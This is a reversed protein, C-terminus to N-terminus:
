RPPRATAAASTLASAAATWTGAWRAPPSSRSRFNSPPYRWSNSPADTSAGAWCLRIHRLVGEISTIWLYTEYQGAFSAGALDESEGSSRVAVPVDILGTREELKRYARAVDDQLVRPMPADMIRAVLVATEAKLRAPEVQTAAQRVRKIEDALGAAAVFARFAHTTVGFGPPVAYGAAAATALSSFKGGLAPNEKAQPDDLWLINPAADSM